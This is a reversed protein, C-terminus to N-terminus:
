KAPRLSWLESFRIGEYPLLLLGPIMITGVHVAHLTVAFAAAVNHDSIYLLMGAVGGAEFVGLGGAPSPLLLCISVVITVVTADMPSFMVGMSAALCWLVAVNIVWTVATLLTGMGAAALGMTRLGDVFARMMGVGLRALKDPLVRALTEVIAVGRDGAALLAAAPIGLIGMLTLLAIRGEEGLDLSRGFLVVTLDPLDGVALVALLLGALVAVDLLRELVISAMGVGFPVGARRLLVPRVFEGMRVPLLDIAMFGIAGIRGLRVPDFSNDWARVILGWRLLRLVINAVMLVLAFALYGLDINSLVAWLEGAHVGRFALWFAFV